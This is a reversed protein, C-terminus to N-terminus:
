QAAGSVLAARRAAMRRRSRAYGGVGVAGGALEAAAMRIEVRDRSRLASALRKTQDDLWWVVLRLILPREAPTAWRAGLYAALGTGWSAYQRRLEDMGRRHRHFVAMRPEYVLVHGAALVRFFIDLDGGGPLPAGTDLADDFGGLARLVAVDFAMDCGAGFEGAGLPHLWGGPGHRGDWRRQVFGRGFGGRHEFRVQAETELEAPLVLGVLGAVDPHERRAAALGVLWRDDVRVDDDVFALWQGRCEALARNRAVDLGALPERVYRVGPRQEVVRQTADDPPANDVVLVEVDGAFARRARDISDLCHGLDDPRNRTCVAVTVTGSPVETATDDGHRRLLQRRLREVHLGDAGAGVALRELETPSLSPGPDPLLLFGLPRDGDRLLLGVGDVGPDVSLASLPRTVDMVRLAYGMSSTHGFIRDM